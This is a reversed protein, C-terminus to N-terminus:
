GAVSGAETVSVLLMREPTKVGGEKAIEEELKKIKDTIAQHEKKLSDLQAQKDGAGSSSCAAITSVIALILLLNKMNNRFSNLISTITRTQM